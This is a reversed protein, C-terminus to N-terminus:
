AARLPAVGDAGSHDRPADGLVLTRTRNAWVRVASKGRAEASRATTPASRYVHTWTEGMLAIRDSGSVGDTVRFADVGEFGSAVFIRGLPEWLDTNPFAEHSLTCSGSIKVTVNEHKLLKPLDAFPQAPPPPEFPQQLGLHDIVLM